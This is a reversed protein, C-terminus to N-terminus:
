CHATLLSCHATLLSCHSASCLRNRQISLNFGFFSALFPMDSKPSKRKASSLLYSM